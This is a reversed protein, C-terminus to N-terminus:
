VAISGEVKGTTSGAKLFNKGKIAYGGTGGAEGFDGSGGGRAGTYGVRGWWGGSGGTGGSNGGTPTSPSGIDGARWDGKWDPDKNFGLGNGGSGGTGGSRTPYTSERREINYFSTNHSCYTNKRVAGTRRFHTGAPFGSITRWATGINGVFGSNKGDWTLLHDSNYDIKGVWYNGATSQECEVWNYKITYKYKLYTDNAGKGGYGGYGGSAYIYGKNTLKMNSTLTLGNHRSMSADVKGASFGQIYGTNILEVNWSAPIDGTKMSCNVRDNILTIETAGNPNRADIFEKIDLTASQRPINLTLFINPNFTKRHTFSYTGSYETDGTDTITCSLYIVEDKASANTTITVTETGQGDTITANSGGSLVWNFNPAIHNFYSVTYTTTSQCTGGASNIVCSGEGNQVIELIQVGCKQPATNIWNLGDEILKIDNTDPANLDNAGLFMNTTDIKNSTDIQGICQVDSDMFMEKFYQGKGSNILGTRTMKGGKCMRQFYIGESYDLQPIGTVTVERFTDTFDKGKSTNFYPIDYIFGTCGWFMGSFNVGQCVGAEGDVILGELYGMGKFYDKYSTRTGWKRIWIDTIYQIDREDVVHDNSYIIVSQKAYDPARYEPASTTPIYSSVTEGAEVQLNHLIFGVDGSGLTRVPYTTNTAGLTIIAGVMSDDMVVGYIVCRYVGEKLMIMEGTIKGTGATTVANDVVGTKLNFAVYGKTEYGSHNGQQYMICYDYNGSYEVVASITIPENILGGSSPIAKLLQQWQNGVATVFEIASLTGDINETPVSSTGNKYEWTFDSFDQSATAYNVSDGEILLVGNEIRPQDIGAYKLVGDDIYSGTSARGVFSEPPYTEKIYGGTGREIVGDGADYHYNGAIRIPETILYEIEHEATVDEGVVITVTCVGSSGWRDAAQFRFTDIDKFGSNPTYLMLPPTGTLVGKNEDTFQIVTYELEDNDLDDAVLEIFNGVSNENVYVTYDTVTPTNNNVSDSDFVVEGTFKIKHPDETHILPTIQTIGYTGTRGFIRTKMLFTKAGNDLENKWWAKFEVVEENTDFRAEFNVVPNVPITKNWGLYVNAYDAKANYGSALFCGGTDSEPYEKVIDNEVLFQEAEEEVIIEGDDMAGVIM